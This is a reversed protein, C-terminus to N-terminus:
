PPNAPGPAPAQHMPREWAGRTDVATRAALDELTRIEQALLEVACAAAADHVQAVRTVGVIPLTGKAIAWAIAIQAVSAGHREGIARMAAILDELQPLVQNYTAARGSGEPMPQGVGYSGALAGQELVMYAFFTIGNDRCYELIGAEESSRYLLSYHNQVASVAFGEQVLTRNVLRIEALNHNSVGVRRIRGSRLLPVLHRTWHNVQTPNHIWYLDVHDTGLRECSQALMEAVPNAAAPDAIQPTFKTSLLVDGRRRQSVFGGLLAESTGMGYVAATDWLNLGAAIAADFVPRLAAADLHHGFVQDGGAFGSGWSWTGLAVKPLGSM